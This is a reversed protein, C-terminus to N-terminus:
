AAAAVTVSGRQLAEKLEGKENAKLTEQLRGFSKEMAM